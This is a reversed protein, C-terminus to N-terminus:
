LCCRYKISLAILLRYHPVVSKKHQRIPIQLEPYNAELTKLQQFLHDYEADSIQPNDLVYYAHNHQRLQQTLQLAQQKIQESLV